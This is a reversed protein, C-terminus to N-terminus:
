INKVSALETIFKFFEGSEYESHFDSPLWFINGNQDALYPLKYINLSPRIKMLYKADEYTLFPTKIYEKIKRKKYYESNTTCVFSSGIIVYSRVGFIGQNYNENVLLTNKIIMEINFHKFESFKSIKLLSIRIDDSPINKYKANYEFVDIFSNNSMYKNLICLGREHSFSSLPEPENTKLYKINNDITEMM